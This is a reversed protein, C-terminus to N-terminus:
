HSPLPRRRFQTETGSRAHKMLFESRSADDSCVALLQSDVEVVGTTLKHHLAKYGGLTLVSKPMACLPGSSSLSSLAKAANTSCVRGSKTKLFADVLNALGRRQAGLDAKSM